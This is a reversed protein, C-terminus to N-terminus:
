KSVDFSGTPSEGKIDAYERILGKRGKIRVVELFEYVSYGNDLVHLKGEPVLKDIASAVPRKKSPILPVGGDFSPLEVSADSLVRKQPSTLLHEGASGPHLASSAHQPPPPPPPVDIDLLISSTDCPVSTLKGDGSTSDTYRMSDGNSLSSSTSHLTLQELTQSTHSRESDFDSSMMVNGDDGVCAMSSNGSSLSSTSRQMSSDGELYQRIDDDVDASHGWVQQLCQTIWAHHNAELKGGLHRPLSAAPIHDTLQNQKVTFVQVGRFAKYLVVRM